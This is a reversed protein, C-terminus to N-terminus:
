KEGEGNKFYYGFVFGLPGSLVGSATLLLDKLEKSNSDCKCFIFAYLFCLVIIGFFGYVYISALKTRTTDKTPKSDDIKRSTEENNNNYEENTKEKEM